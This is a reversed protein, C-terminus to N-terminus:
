SSVPGAEPGHSERMIRVFDELTKGSESEFSDPLFEAREIRDLRFTRFDNRLECWAVALWTPGYFTLALPRIVRESKKESADSYSLRMKKQRRIAGRVSPVDIDIQPRIHGGPAYLHTDRLIRTKEGPLM